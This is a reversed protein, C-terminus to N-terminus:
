SGWVCAASVCAMAPLWSLAPVFGSAPEISPSPFVRAAGEQRSLLLLWFPVWFGLFGCRKSFLLPLLFHRHPFDNRKKIGDTTPPRRVASASMAPRVRAPRTGLIEKYGFFLFFFFL